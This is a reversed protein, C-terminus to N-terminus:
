QYAQAVTAELTATEALRIETQALEGLFYSLMGAPIGQAVALQKCLEAWRQNMYNHEMATLQGLPSAGRVSQKFWETAERLTMEAPEKVFDVLVYIAPRIPPTM